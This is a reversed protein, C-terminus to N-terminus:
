IDSADAAHVVVTRPCPVRDPELVVPKENDFAFIDPDPLIRVQSAANPNWFLRYQMVLLLLRSQAVRLTYKKDHLLRMPFGEFTQPALAHMVFMM